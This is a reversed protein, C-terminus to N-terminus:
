STPVILRNNLDILGHPNREEKVMTPITSVVQSSRAPSPSAKHGEGYDMVLDVKQSYLQPGSSSPPRIYGENNEKGGFYM